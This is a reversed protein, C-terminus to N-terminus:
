PLVDDTREYECLIRPTFSFTFFSLPNVLKNDLKLILIM